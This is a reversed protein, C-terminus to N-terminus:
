YQFIMGTGLNKLTPNGSAVFRSAILRWLTGMLLVTFFATAAATASFHTHMPGGYLPVSLARDRLGMIIRPLLLTLNEM